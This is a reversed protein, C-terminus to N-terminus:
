VPPLDPQRSFKFFAEQTAQGGKHTDFCAKYFSGSMMVVYLVGPEAGFGVVSPM